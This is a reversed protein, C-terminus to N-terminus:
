PTLKKSTFLKPGVQRLKYKLRFFLKSSLIYKAFDFPTAGYYAILETPVRTGKEYTSGLFRLSQLPTHSQECAQAEAESPFPGGCHDCVWTQRAM